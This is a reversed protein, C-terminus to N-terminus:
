KRGGDPFFYMALILILATIGNQLNNNLVIHLQEFIGLAFQSAATGLAGGFLTSKTPMWGTKIPEEDAM